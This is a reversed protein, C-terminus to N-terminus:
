LHATEINDLYSFLSFFCCKPKEKFLLKSLIQTTEWTKKLMHKQTFSICMGVSYNRRKPLSWETHIHAYTKMMEM